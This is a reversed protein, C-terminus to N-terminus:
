ALIFFIAVSRGLYDKYEMRREIHDKFVKDFESCREQFADTIDELNAIVAMWGQHQLHQEHVLKDCNKLEDKGVEFIQQALQARRVVTNYTAQLELCKEVEGKLDSDSEKEISPWPQQNQRPELSNSFMFIPNTDTGASYGCVRKSSELTEGGSVLLVQNDAPIAHHREIAQKLSHVRHLLCFM